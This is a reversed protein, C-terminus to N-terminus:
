WLDGKRLERDDPEQVNPYAYGANEAWKELEDAEFVDEPSYNERVYEKLEYAPYVEEPRFYQAVWEVIFGADIDANDRFTNAFSRDEETTTHRKM